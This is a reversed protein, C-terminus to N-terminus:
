SADHRTARIASRRAPVFDNMTLVERSGDRHLLLLSDSEVGAADRLTNADVQPQWSCGAPIAVGDLEVFQMGRVPPLPRGRVLVREDDSVAFTLQELRAQPATAGWTIWSERDTLLLGPTQVPGAAPVIELEVRPVRATVVAAAPLAADVCDRIPLWNGEPLNGSPTREGPRFLVGQKRVEFRDLTPLGLLVRQQDAATRGGQVYVRDADTLVRVGPWLRLQALAASESAPLVILWGDSM